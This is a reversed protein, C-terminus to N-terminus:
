VDGSSIRDRGPVTSPSSSSSSGGETDGNLMVPPKASTLGAWLGALLAAGLGAWTPCTLGAGPDGSIDPSSSSPGNDAGKSEM